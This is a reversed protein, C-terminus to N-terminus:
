DNKSMTKAAVVIVAIFIVVHSIEIDITWFFGVDVTIDFTSVKMLFVIALFFVGLKQMIPQFM